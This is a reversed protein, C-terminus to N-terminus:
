MLAWITVTSAGRNWPPESTMGGRKLAPLKQVSAASCPQVQSLTTGVMM